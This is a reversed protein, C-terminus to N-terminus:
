HYEIRQGWGLTVLKIRPNFNETYGPRSSMGKLKIHWMVMNMFNFKQGGLVGLDWVRPCAHGLPVSYFDQRIHKIDKM